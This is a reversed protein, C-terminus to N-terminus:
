ECLLVGVGFSCEIKRIQKRSAEGAEENRDPQLSLPANDLVFRDQSHTREPSVSNFTSPILASLFWCRGSLKVMVRRHPLGM